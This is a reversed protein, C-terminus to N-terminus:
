CVHLGYTSFAAWASIPLGREWQSRMACRVADAVLWRRGSVDLAGYFATMFDGTSADDVDWASAVVSIAGSILFARPLGWLEEGYRVGQSGSACASAVVLRASRFTWRVEEADLTGDAAIIASRMPDAEDFSAHGAYHVIDVEACEAFITAKIADPGIIPVTQFLRAVKEAEDAAFRLDSTPDGIVAAKVPGRPQVWQNHRPALMEAVSSVYVISIAVGLPQSGHALIHLPLQQAPGHRSVYLVDFEGLSDAVCDILPQAINQWTPSEDAQIEFRARAACDQLQAAGVPVYRVDPERGAAVLVVVTRDSLVYYCLVAARESIQDLCAQISTWDARVVKRARAYGATAETSEITAWLRRLQERRETAERVLGARYPNDYQFDRLADRIERLRMFIQQEEEALEPNILDPSPLYRLSLEERMLRAKPREIAEFLARPDLCPSSALADVVVDYLSALSAEWNRRGQSDETGALYEANEIASTAVELAGKPDGVRMRLEAVFLGILVEEYRTNTGAILAHAREISPLATRALEILTHNPLAIIAQGRNYLMRSRQLPTADIRGEDIWDSLESFLAIARNLQQEDASARGLSLLAAALSERVVFCLGDSLEASQAIQHAEELLELGFPYDGITAGEFIVEARLCRIHVALETSVQSVSILGELEDWAIRYQDHDGLLAMRLRAEVLKVRINVWESFGIPLHAKLTSIAIEYHTIAERLRNSDNDSGHELATAFMRQLSAFEFPQTNSWELVTENCISIFLDADADPAALEHAGVRILLRMLQLRAADVTDLDTFYLGFADLIYDLAIRLRPDSLREVGRSEKAALKVRRDAEDNRAKINVPSRITSSLRDITSPLREVTTHNWKVLYPTSEAGEGFRRHLIAATTNANRHEYDNYTDGMMVYILIKAVGDHLMLPTRWTTTSGCVCKVRNVTGDVCERWVDPEELRDVIWWLPLVAERRCKLCTVPCDVTM